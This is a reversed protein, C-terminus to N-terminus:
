VVITNGIKLSNYTFSQGPELYIALIVYKQETGSLTYSLTNKGISIDTSGQAELYPVWSQPETTPVADLGIQIIALTPPHKGNTEISEVSM